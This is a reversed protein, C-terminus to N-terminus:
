LSFDNSFALLTSLLFPPLFIDTISIEIFPFESIELGMHIWIVVFHCRNWSLPKLLSCLPGTLLLIKEPEKAVSSLSFGSKSAHSCFQCRARNGKRTLMCRDKVTQFFCCKVGQSLDFFLVTVWHLELEWIFCCLGKRYAASEQVFVAKNM